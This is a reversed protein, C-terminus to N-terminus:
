PRAVVIESWRKPYPQAALHRLAVPLDSARRAAEATPYRGWSIQYCSQGAHDVPLVYLRDESAFDSALGRAREADCLLALQATFGEGAPGRETDDQVRVALVDGSAKLEPLPEVRYTEPPKPVAARSLDRAPARLVAGVLLTLTVASVVFLARVAHPWGGTRYEGESTGSRGRQKAL